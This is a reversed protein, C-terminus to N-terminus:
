NNAIIFGIFALAWLSLMVLSNRTSHEESFEQKLSDRCGRALWILATALGYSLVAALAIVLLSLVSVGDM